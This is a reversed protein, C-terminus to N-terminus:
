PVPLTRSHCQCQRSQLPYSKVSLKSTILSLHIASTLSPVSSTTEWSKKQTTMLIMWIQFTKVRRPNKKETFSEDDSLDLDDDSEDNVEIEDGVELLKQRGKEIDEESSGYVIKLLEPHDNALVQRDIPEFVRLVLNTADDPDMMDVWPVNLNGENIVGGFAFKKPYQTKTSVATLLKAMKKGFLALPVSNTDVVMRIQQFNSNKQYVPKGRLRANPIFVLGLRKVLSEKERIIKLTPGIFGPHKGTSNLVEFMAYKGILGRAMLKESNNRGDSTTLAKYKTRAKSGPLAGGNTDPLKSSSSPKSTNNLLDLLSKDVHVKDRGPAPDGEMETPSPATPEKTTKNRTSQRPMIAAPNILHALSNRSPSSNM